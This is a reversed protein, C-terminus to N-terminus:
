CHVTRLPIPHFICAIQCCTPALKFLLCSYECALRRLSGGSGVVMEQVTLVLRLALLSPVFAFDITLSRSLSSRRSHFGPFRLTCVMQLTSLCESRDTRYRSRMQTCPAPLRSFRKGLCLVVVTDFTAAKSEFSNSSSELSMVPGISNLPSWWVLSATEIEADCLM